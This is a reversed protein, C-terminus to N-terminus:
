PDLTQKLREFCDFSQCFYEAKGIGALKRHFNVHGARRSNQAFDSCTAIARLPKKPRVKGRLEFRLSVSPPKQPFELFIRM